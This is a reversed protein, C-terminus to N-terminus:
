GDSHPFDSSCLARHQIVDLRPLGVSLAVSLYRGNLRRAQGARSTPLPSITRYSRVASTTVRTARCVGGAALGFLPSRRGPATRDAPLDSSGILLSRGLSITAQRSRAYRTSSDSGFGEVRKAREPYVSNPKCAAAAALRDAAVGLPTAATRKKSGVLLSFCTAVFVRISTHSFRPEGNTEDPNM